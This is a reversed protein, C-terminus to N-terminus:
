GSEVQEPLITPHGDDGDIREVVRAERVEGMARIDCEALRSVVAVRATFEPQVDGLRGDHELACEAGSVPGSGHEGEAAGDGLRDREDAVLDVHERRRAFQEGVEGPVHEM